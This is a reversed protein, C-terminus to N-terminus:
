CVIQEDMNKAISLIEDRNTRVKQSSVLNRTNKSPSLAYSERFYALLRSILYPPHSRM